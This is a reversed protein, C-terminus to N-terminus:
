RLKVVYIFNFRLKEDLSLLEKPPKKYFPSTSYIARLVEKDLELVGSSKYLEVNDITGDKNMIVLVQTKLEKISPDLFKGQRFYKTLAQRPDLAYQLQKKFAIYFSSHKFEVTNVFTYYGRKIDPLYETEPNQIIPTQKDGDKEPKEELLKFKNLDFKPKAKTEKKIIRNKESLYKADKPREHKEIPDNVDIIQTPSNKDLKIDVIINEYEKKKKFFESFKNPVIFVMILVHIILSILIFLLLKERQTM